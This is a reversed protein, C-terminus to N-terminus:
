NEIELFQVQKSWLGALPEEVAIQELNVVFRGIYNKGKMDRGSFVAAIVCYRPSFKELYSLILGILRDNLIESNLEIIM